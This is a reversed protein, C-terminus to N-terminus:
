SISRRSVAREKHDESQSTIVVPDQRLPEVEEVVLILSEGIRVRPSAPIIRLNAAPTESESASDMHLPGAQEFEELPLLLDEAQKAPNVVYGTVVIGRSDLLLDALSGLCMGHLTLITLECVECLRAAHEMSRLSAPRVPDSDVVVVDGNLAVIHEIGVAAIARLRGFRRRIATALGDVDQMTQVCLATVRCTEPDFAVDSVRGVPELTTANVVQRHLLRSALWTQGSIPTSVLSTESEVPEM